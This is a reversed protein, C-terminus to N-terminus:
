ALSIPVTKTANKFFNLIINSFMQADSAGTKLLDTISQFSLGTNKILLDDDLETELSVWKTVFDAATAAGAVHSRQIWELITLGGYHETPLHHTYVCHHFFLLLEPPTSHPSLLQSRLPEYYTNAFASRNVGVKSPTAQIYTENRHEPDMDYHQRVNDGSASVFGWGLSATYNEFAEWSPLLIDLIVKNVTPNLGFTAAAWDASVTEATLAPDWALRGFGYTNAASFPHHTWTQENGFNSVAAVGTLRPRTSYQAPRYNGSIIDALSTVLSSNATYVRTNLYHSWQVPKHVIHKAQGLYEQTAQLELILAVNNLYGFLSHVAERVQFDFPGTKIQLVVNPSTANEANWDKFQNFQFLAQDQGKPPHSFARWIVIGGISDLSKALLNAGELQTVHYDEPGPQGECDAKILFGGFIHARDDSGDSWSSQIYEATDQWYQAIKPDTPDATDFGGVIIPSSYCPVLFSRIGYSYFLDAM